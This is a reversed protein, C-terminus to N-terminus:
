AEGRKLEVGVWSRSGDLNVRQTVGKTRLWKLLIVASCTPIRRLQCFADVEQWVDERLQERSKELILREEAFTSFIRDRKYLRYIKHWPYGKPKAEKDPREPIFGVVGPLPRGMVSAEASFLDDDDLDAMVPLWRSYEPDETDVKGKLPDPRLQLGYWWRQNGTRRRWTLHQVKKLYKGLSTQTTPEFRNNRWREFTDYIEAQSVGFAPVCREFNAFLFKAFIENQEYKEIVNMRMDGFKLDAYSLVRHFAQSEM